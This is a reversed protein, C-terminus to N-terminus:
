GGTVNQNHGVMQLGSRMDPPNQGAMLKNSPIKLSGLGPNFGKSGATFVYGQSMGIANSM